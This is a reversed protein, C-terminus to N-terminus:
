ILPRWVKNIRSMYTADDLRSLKVGEGRFCHIFKNEQLAIGLHHVCGGIKFGILDGPAIKELPYDLVRMAGRGELEGEIWNAIISEKNANGWDMPGEPVVFGPMFVGCEIYIMGVLKQCSVGDGKVSANPMFPTGRWSHAIIQLADIREPSNFYEMSM